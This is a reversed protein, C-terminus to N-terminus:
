RTYYDILSTGPSERTTALGLLRADEHRLRKAATDRSSRYAERARRGDASTLQNRLGTLRRLPRFVDSDRHYM